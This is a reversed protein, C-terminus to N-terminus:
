IVFGAFDEDYKTPIIEYYECETVGNVSFPDEALIARVEDETEARFLIAGGIRPNRRGSFIVKKQACYGDLFASHAPLLKDVEQIDKVYRTLVLFMNEEEEEYPTKAQM